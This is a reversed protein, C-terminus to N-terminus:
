TTWDPVGELPSSATAYLKKGMRGAKYALRGAQVAPLGAALCEEVVAVLDRGGTQTRDTVLSLRLEDM